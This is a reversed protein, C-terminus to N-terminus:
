KRVTLKKITAYLVLFFTVLGGAVLGIPQTWGLWADLKSGGWAGLAFTVAMQLGLGTYQVLASGQRPANDPARSIKEKTKKM